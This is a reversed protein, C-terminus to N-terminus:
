GLVRLLELFQSYKLRDPAGSYAVIVRERFRHVARDFDLQHVPRDVRCAPLGHIVNGPPNLEAIIPSTKM